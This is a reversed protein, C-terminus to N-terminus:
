AGTYSSTAVTGASGGNPLWPSVVTLAEVGRFAVTEFVETFIEYDNTADLTSDRVVGIDLVGGDLRQCTGEVFLNWVCKTIWPAIPNNATVKSYTQVPYQYASGGTTKAARGDLMFIAHIGRSSLWGDIQADTVAHVDTGGDDHAVERALDARMADRVWRPFIATLTVNDSLRHVDKYYAVVQDITALLDRATGLLNFSNVLTSGADGRLHYALAESV